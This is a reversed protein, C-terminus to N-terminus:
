PGTPTATNPVVYTFPFTQSSQFTLPSQGNYAFQVVFPRIQVTTRVSVTGQVPGGYPALSTVQSIPDNPASPAFTVDSKKLSFNSLMGAARANARQVVANARDYAQNPDGSAAVRAAERCTSDNIQVGIVIVALDFIVLVIPILAMLGVALEIISQGVRKRHRPMTM